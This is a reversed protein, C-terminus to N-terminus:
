SDTQLFEPMTPTTYGKEVESYKGAITKIIDIAREKSTKGVIEKLIEQYVEFFNDIEDQYMTLPTWQNLLSALERELVEITKEGMHNSRKFEHYKPMNFFPFNVELFSKSTLFESVM